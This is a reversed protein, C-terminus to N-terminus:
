RPSGGNPLLVRLSQSVSGDDAGFVELRFQIDDGAPSYLYSGRALQTRDLTLSKRVTGDRVSLTARRAAAIERADRNWSVLLDPPTRDVQLGLMSGAAMRPAAEPHPPRPAGLYTMVSIVLAATAIM